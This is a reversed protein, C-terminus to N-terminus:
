RRNHGSMLVLPTMGTSVVDFVVPVVAWLVTAGFYRGPVRVKM